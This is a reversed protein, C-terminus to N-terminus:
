RAAEEAAPLLTGTVVKGPAALDRLTRAVDKDTVGAIREPWLPYDGYSNRAALWAVLRNYVLAPDQDENIRADAFRRKLREVTAGPLPVNSLSEAYRAIGALLAAPDADHAVEASMRLVLTKPAVREISIHPTDAALPTKEVLLEHPSGPLRSRLYAAVVVRSARQTLSEDEVRVMKKYVVSARKVQIDTERLDRKEFVIPPLRTSATRPPLPKAPLSALASEAIAKLDAASINARVVFYANNVAYWIRHFVRADPLTLRAISERTGITWQGAPHDPLLERDLRREFRRAPNGTVRLDHEQLVVNREREAEAEGIAFDRLRGAYFAFLKELDARPGGGDRAPVSHVYATARMNTWGNAYADALIRVGVDAHEGNRGTLVLHELYHALGQCQGGPEDGCGALVIMQFHTPSGPKDRVLFVRESVQEEAASLPPAGAAIACIIALALWPHARAM